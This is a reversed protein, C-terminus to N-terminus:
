NINDIQEVSLGVVEAIATTDMGSQRLNRVVQQLRAEAEDARQTELETDTLLWSGSGDCWRLWSHDIGEFIGTWIGLGLELEPIWLQPQTDQVTQEEYRAGALRFFRVVGTYRSFVIYYPVRLIQEYVHWKRPPAPQSNTTQSNSAKSIEGNGYFPGLDESETGPSLFEVVVLPSVGEQWVVYSNRLDKGGYLRPVDVALFWDPRKHWLPNRVDYYLNIDSGTFYNDAEYQTLRLTRSLLQPQLDHFEDPLGPEEPFETPLDYMTPLTESPPLPPVPQLLQPSEKAQTM